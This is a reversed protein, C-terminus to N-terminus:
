QSEGDSGSKSATGFFQDFEGSARRFDEHRGIDLWYERIPFASAKLKKAMCTEFLSTMDFRTDKPILELVEPNLVYIGANVFFSETPKESISTIGRGSTEIVGYPVQFEYKRVCMTVSARESRHFDLLQEFNVKTLIDGNMVILPQDPKEPLLSLCGATGLSRGERLYEIKVGWESGDKFHGELMEARYNVSIYFNQYGLSVFSELITELIPKEGIKLLPKPTQETLPLLRTGTGGAMLVVWNPRTPPVSEEDFAELGLIVGADDVIPLRYIRKKKMKARKVNVSESPTATVPRSNMVDSVPSTLSINKLIARRIDGDTLTGLLRGAEDAVLAIQLGHIDLERIADRIPMEPAILSKKWQNM